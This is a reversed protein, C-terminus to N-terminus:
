RIYDDHMVNCYYRFTDLADSQQTPDQRNTKLITGNPLMRVNQLDYILASAHEKHIVINYNQLLANVLAQNEELPPNSKPLM